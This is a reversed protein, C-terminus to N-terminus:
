QPCRWQAKHHLQVVLDLIDLPVCINRHGSGAMWVVMSCGWGGLLCGWMAGIYWIADKTHLARVSGLGNGIAGLIAALLSFGKKVDDPNALDRYIAIIQAVPMFMFLFTALWASVSGIVPMLKPPQLLVVVMMFFFGFIGVYVATPNTDAPNTHPFIFSDMFSFCCAGMGIPTTFEQWKQFVKKPVIGCAKTAVMLLGTGYILSLCVLAPLPCKGAMWMQVIIVWSTSTGFVQFRVAAWEDQSAFYTSMSLDGLGGMGYAQWALADFPALNHAALNVVNKYIQPFNSPLFFFASVNICILSVYNYNVILWPWCPRVVDIKTGDIDLLPLDLTNARVRSEAEEM